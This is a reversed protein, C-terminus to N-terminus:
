FTKKTVKDVEYYVDGGIGGPLFINYFMGIYNIKLNEFFRLHYGKRYCLYWIQISCVVKFSSLPDM